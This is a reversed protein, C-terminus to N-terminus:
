ESREAARVRAAITSLPKADGAVAFLVAVFRVIPTAYEEGYYGEKASASYPKGGLHQWLSLAMKCFLTSYSPAGSQGSVGSEVALRAAAHIREDFVEANRERLRLQATTLAARTTDDMRELAELLPRGTLKALGALTARVDEASVRDERACRVIHAHGSTSEVVQEREADNLTRGLASELDSWQATTV